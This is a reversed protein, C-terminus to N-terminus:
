LRTSSRKRVARDGWVSGGFLWVCFLCWCLHLGAGDHEEEGGEPGAGQLPFCGRSGSAFTPSIVYVCRYIQHGGDGYIVMHM